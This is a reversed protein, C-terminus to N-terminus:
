PVYRILMIDKLKLESELQALVEEAKKRKLEPGVYVRTMASDNDTTTGRNTTTGPLTELYANYGQKQLKGVLEQANDTKKFSALQITWAGQFSRKLNTSTAVSDDADGEIGNSGVSDSDVDEAIFALRDANIQNIANQKRTDSSAVLPITSFVAPQDPLQVADLMSDSAPRDLLNPLIVVAAGVLVVAGVVRQKLGDDM